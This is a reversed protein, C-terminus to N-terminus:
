RRRRRAPAAPRSTAASVGGTVANDVAAVLADLAAEYRHGPPAGFGVAVHQPGDDDPGGGTADLEALGALRLGRTAAARVVAREPVGAPLELLGHLGADMGVLRCGPLRADVVEQLRRRRARYVARRSRVTRDYGHDDLFRALTLQALRDPRVGSLRRQHALDAVLAPPVAGWALGVGPALAKSATGAYVVHDPALAQVAGVARRDYRFEGDYDDEVVIAGTRAAWAVLSRRRDPALAVGTPFQHAATVLVADIGSLEALAAVDLGDGDVAVPVVDLGAAAVVERHAAHGYREVAVRRAGRAALARCVLALLEGFGHTVVVAGPETRVGRVRALYAALAHRLEADGLPDGYGLHATAAETAARRASAAWAARPFGSADPIGARLDLLDPEAAPPPAVAPTAGVPAAVWTGAGVRSDLWGEAALQAYVAAVTGRAVGLDAALARTSPLRTRPALRGSTVADRLADELGRGPRPTGLALHLDLGTTASRAPSTSWFDAM